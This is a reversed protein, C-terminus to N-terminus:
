PRVTIVDCAIQTLVEEASNGLLRARIGTRATTGVVALEADVKRATKAVANGVDGTPLHIRSRPIGYPATLADLGAKAVDRGRGRAARWDIANFGRLMAGHELAYVCHVRGGRIEAMHHAVELVGQNLVTHKRDNHRLDLAALVNGSTTDGTRATLMVSAPCERILRWDLPTHLLSGKGAASKVVLDCPRSAVYDHIWDVIDETWVTETDLDAALAHEDRLQGTVWERRARIIEKRIARRQHADFTEVQGYSPHWCVTVTHLHGGGLAQLKLGHELATQPHSPPDMVVLLNQYRKM